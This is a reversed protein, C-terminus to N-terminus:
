WFNHSPYIHLLYDKRHQFSRGAATSYFSGATQCRSAPLQIDTASFKKTVFGQVISNLNTQVREPDKHPFHVPSLGSQEKQTFSVASGAKSPFLGLGCLLLLMGLGFKIIHNRHRFM